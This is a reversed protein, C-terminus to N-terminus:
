IGSSLQVAKVKWRAIQAVGNLAMHKVRLRELILKPTIYNPDGGDGGNLLLL